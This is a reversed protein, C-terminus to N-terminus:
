GKKRGPKKLTLQQGPQVTDGPQLGNYKYIYKSKIGFSQAISLISDGPKVVYMGQKSESRKPKLYVIQGENLQAYLDMENYKPLQWYGLELEKALSKFSDGKRAVVYDVGNNDLIERRDFANVVTVSPVFVKRDAVVEAPVENAVSATLDTEDMQDFLHLQNDEIIKILRDAYGPDTAYGAKKLGRAWSKYDTREYEFLFAYRPRTRLFLSHDDYSELTTSYKRFCEDKRDDDEIIYPGTWDSCKIGFHNNAERALRSNGDQSELCAQALTISAPVGTKKMDRVADFKHAEIYQQRSPRVNDGAEAQVAVGTWFLFIAIRKM